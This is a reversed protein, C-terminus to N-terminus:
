DSLKSESSLLLCSRHLGNRFVDRRTNTVVKKLGRGTSEKVYLKTFGQVRLLISLDGPVCAINLKSRVKRENIKALTQPM